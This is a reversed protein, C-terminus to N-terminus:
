CSTLIFGSILFNYEPYGINQQEYSTCTKCELYKNLFKATLLTNPLQALGFFSYLTRRKYYISLGGVENSILKEYDTNVM